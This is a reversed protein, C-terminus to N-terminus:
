TKRGLPDCPFVDRPIGQYGDVSLAPSGCRCSVRKGLSARAAAAPVPAPSSTRAPACRGTVNRVWKRMGERGRRNRRRGPLGRPCWRGSLWGRARGLGGRAPHVRRRVGRPVPLSPSSSPPPPLLSPPPLSSPPLGGPLSGAGVGGWGWGPKGQAAGGGDCPSALM